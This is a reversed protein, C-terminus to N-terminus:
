GVAPGHVTMAVLAGPAGNLPGPWKPPSLAVGPILVTSIAKQFHAEGV